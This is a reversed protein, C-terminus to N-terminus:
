YYITFIYHNLNDKKYHRVFRCLPLKSLKWIYENDPNKDMLILTYSDNQIYPKNNAYRNEIRNLSYVIAPYVMKISEPPQFYVQRSELIECLEEHLKLRNSM